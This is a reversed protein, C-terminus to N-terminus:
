TQIYAELNSLSFLIVYIKVFNKCLTKSSNLYNQTVHFAKLYYRATYYSDIFKIFSSKNSKIKKKRKKCHLTNSGAGGM